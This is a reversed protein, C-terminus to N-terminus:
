GVIILAPQQSRTEAQAQKRKEDWLGLENNAAQESETLRATRRVVKIDRHSQRLHHSHDM